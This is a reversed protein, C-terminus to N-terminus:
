NEATKQTLLFCRPLGEADTDSICGVPEYGGQWRQRLAILLADPTAATIEDFRLDRAAELPATNELVAIFKDAVTCLARVRAPTTRQCDDLLSQAVQASDLILDRLDFIRYRDSPM